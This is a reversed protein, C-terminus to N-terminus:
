IVVPIHRNVTIQVPHTEPSVLTIWTEAIYSEKSNTFNMRKEFVWGVRMIKNDRDIYVSSVCKGYERRLSAFLEGKNSTFTEYPGIDDCAHYSEGNDQKIIHSETIWIKDM